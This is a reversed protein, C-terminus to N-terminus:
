SILLHQFMPGLPQLNAGLNSPIRKRAKPLTKRKEKQFTAYNAVM